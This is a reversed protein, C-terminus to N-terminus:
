TLSFGTLVLNENAALGALYDPADLIPSLIVLYGLVSVVTATIFLAGV